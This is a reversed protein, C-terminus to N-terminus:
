KPPINVRCTFMTFLNTQSFIYFLYYISTGLFGIILKSRRTPLVICMFHLKRNFNKKIFKFLHATEQECKRFFDKMSFKMTQATFFVFFPEAYYRSNSKGGGNASHLHSIIDGVPVTTLESLQSLTFNQSQSSCCDIGVTPLAYLHFFYLKSIGVTM